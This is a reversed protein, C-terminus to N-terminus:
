LRGGGGVMSRKERAPGSRSSRACPARTAPMPVAMAPVSVAVAVATWMLSPCLQLLRRDIGLRCRLPWQLTEGLPQRPHELGVSHQVRGLELRAPM